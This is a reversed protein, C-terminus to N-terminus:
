NIKKQMALIDYEYLICTDEDLFKKDFPYFYVLDGESLSIIKDNGNGTKEVRAMAIELRKYGTKTENASEFERPIIKVIVNDNVPIMSSHKENSM